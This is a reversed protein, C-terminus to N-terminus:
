MVDEFRSVCPSNREGIRKYLSLVHSIGVNRGKRGRIKVGKKGEKSSRILLCVLTLFAVNRMSSTFWISDSKM